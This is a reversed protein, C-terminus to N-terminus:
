GAAFGELTSVLVLLQYVPEALKPDGARYAGVLHDVRERRIQGQSARDLRDGLDPLRDALERNLWDGLPPNFGRKKAHLLDFQQCVGCRAVLAKKAPRTFRQPAPLAYVAEVLKHDLLPARMELGHAMTALDGKRLIYEPLYNAMDIDLLASLGKSAPPFNRWYVAEVPYDPQLFRRTAPSLGSFRLGYAELWTLGLEERRRASRSWPPAQDPRRWRLRGRWATRMHKAYRKYGAFLEDGGDGGLVVAVERSAERALYWLPLASPDAFPEDLDAVFRDFDDRLRPTVPIARHPLGLAEAHRAAIGAEDFPSGPFSATYATINTYGQRALSSAVVASDIGGSLFLGVPRDSSTRLRVAHDLTEAVPLIGPAPVWYPQTALKCRVLDLSLTHGAPLRHVNEFLSLPAPIYRHALYADIAPGHLRQRRSGLYPVLARTISAFAFDIGDWFYLLPKLGLRDRAAFLRKQRLDLIVFAFMGRLHEVVREGWEAYGHLIFETDSRTRFVYGKAVLRAADDEYGYVEGNYCIWIDGAPNAMPQNADPRPDRISLRAHLFGAAADGSAAAPLPTWDAAWLARGRADPGRQALAGLMAERVDRSVASAGLFGGIGCM